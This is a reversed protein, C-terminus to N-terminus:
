IRTQRGTRGKAGPWIPLAGKVWESARKWRSPPPPPSPKLSDCLKAVAARAREEGVIAGLAPLPQVADNAAVAAAAVLSAVGQTKDAISAETANTGCFPEFMTAAVSKPLLKASASWFKLQLAVGNVLRKRQWGPMSELSRRVLEASVPGRAAIRQGLLEMTGEDPGSERGAVDRACALEPAYV